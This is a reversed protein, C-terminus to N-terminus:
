AAIEERPDTRLAAVTLRLGEDLTVRPRWGTAARLRENAGEMHMIQDPGFPIDGFALELGPAAFDRLREVISRVPVADGSSLNYVGDVGPTTVVALVGDAADDIHLYDWRQTGATTRPRAGSLLQRALSPILWNDADGPGYTAFLRLWAFEAGLQRAANASLTAAALKAAGYASVPCPLHGEDVRGETPGYEDQSGIGIFRRAEARATAEVLRWCPEVQAFQALSRRDTSALGSWAAHIVADPRTDALIAAVAAHDRLDVTAVQVRLGALRSSPRRLLAVVEHGAVAARRAVAAGLFGGAGTVLLKM